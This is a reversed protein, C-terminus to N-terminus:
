KGVATSSQMRNIRIKGAFGKREAKEPTLQIPSAEGESPLALKKNAEALAESLRKNEDALEAFQKDRAEDFSLGDAFWELGKDGFAKRYRKMENQVASFDVSPKDIEVEVKVSDAGMETPKSEPQAEAKLETPKVETNPMDGGKTTVTIKLSYSESTSFQSETNMDAGYPCVAVGRLPWERVVIGPGEFQYGNVETVFGEPVQELVSGDGGWNISAEYPVGGRSRAILKRAPDGSESTPVLAGEVFLGEDGPEFTDLFGIEEGHIYDVPIINKHVKVGSMDHVIRGWFWHEIPHASRALMRIPYSEKEADKAAFEVVGGPLTFAKAPVKSFDKTM